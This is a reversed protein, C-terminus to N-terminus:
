FKQWVWNVLNILRALNKLNSIMYRKDSIIKFNKNGVKATIKDGKFCIFKVMNNENTVVTKDGQLDFTNIILTKIETKNLIKVAENSLASCDNKTLVNLDEYSLRKITKSNKIIKPNIPKIGCVDTYNEYTDANIVKALIAGSVDGGGRKMLVIKNSQNLGYFGGTIIRGYKNLASLLNTQTKNYDIKKGNFVILEGAPVYIIKLYESFFLATYYEGRSIIYNRNKNKLLDEKIINLDFKIKLLRSLTAFKQIILDLIQGKIENNSKCFEILLDTLKIDNKFRKGIASFVFVKRSKNESVKKINLIAKPNIVSSGGFKCVVM